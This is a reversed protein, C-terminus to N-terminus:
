FILGELDRVVKNVSEKVQENNTLDCKICFCNKYIEKDLNTFNKDLLIVEIKEKLFREAIASGIKGAGGTIIAVSGEFKNRQKSNLKARELPWYEMKFIEKDNISQFNSICNSDIVSEKMSLFIDNSIKEEKKDRGISFYGLGPLM